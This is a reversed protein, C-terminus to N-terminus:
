HRETGNKRLLYNESVLKLIKRGLQPHDQEYASKIVIGERIHGGGLNTKGNALPEILAPNFPGEYLVPVMPLGERRCLLATEENHVFRKKSSSAAYADFIALELQRSSAGYKLDQVDGYVEGYLGIMPCRSLREELNYAKAVRNWIDNSDPRKWTRHSGVWLRTGDHIARFNCGHLKESVTVMEGPVFVDRYKRYSEMGYVPMLGPDREQDGGLCVPEPEEFKTVGLLSSVDDGLQPPSSLSAQGAICLQSHPEIVVSFPLLLGMSFVGRLRAAKIRAFGNSYKLFPLRKGAPGGEAVVSDVPLYIAHDGKELEGTRFICPSGEVTTISLSDANPHKRIEGLRVVPVTFGM